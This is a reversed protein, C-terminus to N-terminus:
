AIARLTEASVDPLQGPALPRTPSRSGSVHVALYGLSAGLRRRSRWYGPSIGGSGPAQDVPEIATVQNRRRGLLGQRPIGDRSRWQPDLLDPDPRRRSRPRIRDEPAARDPRPGGAPYDAMPM